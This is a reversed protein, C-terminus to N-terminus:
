EHSLNEETKKCPCTFVTTEFTEAGTQRLLYQEVKSRELQAEQSPRM